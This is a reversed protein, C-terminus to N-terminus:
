GNSNYTYLRDNKNEAFISVKRVHFVPKSTSLAYGYEHPLPTRVFGRQFGLLVLLTLIKTSNRSLIPIETSSHSNNFDLNQGRTTLGHPM